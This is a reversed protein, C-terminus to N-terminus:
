LATLESLFVLSLIFLKLGTM